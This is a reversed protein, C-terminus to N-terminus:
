KVSSGEDIVEGKMSLVVGKRPDSNLARYYKIMRERYIPNNIRKLKEVQHKTLGSTAKLNSNYMRIGGKVLAISILVWIVILLVITLLEV